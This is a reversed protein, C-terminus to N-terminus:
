PRQGMRDYIAAVDPDKGRAEAIDRRGADARGLRIQAVGRGYLSAALNPDRGYAVDFDTYAGAFDGAALKAAARNSLIDPRDDIRLAAECDALAQDLDRGQIARVSCRSNLYAASNPALEIARDYDAIARGYSELEQWAMGRRWYNGPTDPSLRIAEDWDTIARTFEGRSTYLRARVAHAFANGAQLAISRNADALGEEVDGEDMRVAARLRLTSADDPRLEDAHKLDTRAETYWGVSRYRAARLVLVIPINELPLLGSRLVMTCGAIVQVNTTGEGRGNCANVWDSYTQLAAAQRAERVGVHNATEVKLTGPLSHRAFFDSVTRSERMAAAMDAEGAATQGRRLKIVGRGYLALNVMETANAAEAARFDAEAADLRGARLRVMARTLLAFWGNPEAALAATCDAEARVLDSGQLALIRCRQALASANGPFLRLARDIEALAEPFQGMQTRASARGVMAGVRQPDLALAANYDSLSADFEELVRYAFARQIFGAVVNNGTMNQASVLHSCGGIRLDLHRRGETANCYERWVPYPNAGEATQATGPTPALMLAAGAMLIATRVM